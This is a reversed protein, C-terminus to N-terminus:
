NLTRLSLYDMGANREVDGSLLLACLVITTDTHTFCSDLTGTVTLSHDSEETQKEIRQSGGEERRRVGEESM